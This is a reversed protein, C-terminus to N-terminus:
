PNGKSRLSLDRRAYLMTTTQQFGCEDLNGLKGHLSQEEENKQESHRPEM